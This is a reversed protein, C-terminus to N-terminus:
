SLPAFIGEIGASTGARGDEGAIGDGKSFSCGLTDVGIGADAESLGTKTGPGCGSDNGAGSGSACTGYKGESFVRSDECYM